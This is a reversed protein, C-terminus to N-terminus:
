FDVIILSIDDMSGNKAAEKVIARASHKLLHNKLTEESYGKLIGDSAVALIDGAKIEESIYEVKEPFDVRAGLFSYIVEKDALKKQDTLSDWVGQEKYWRELTHHDNLRKLVGKRLLFLDSDGVTAAYLVGRNVAAVVLTTCLPFEATPFTNIQCLKQGAANLFSDLIEKYSKKSLRELVMKSAAADITSVTSHSALAGGPAGGVGDALILLQREQDGFLADQNDDSRHNLGAQSYTELSKIQPKQFFWFHSPRCIVAHASVSLFYNIGLFFFWKRM